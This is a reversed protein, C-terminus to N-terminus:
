LISIQKGDGALRGAILYLSGAPAPALALERDGAREALAREGAREAPALALERDGACYTAMDIFAREFNALIDWYRGNYHVIDGMTISLIALLLKMDLLMYSMM